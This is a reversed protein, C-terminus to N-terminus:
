IKMPSIEWGTIFYKNLDLQCSVMLTISWCSTKPSLLIILDTGPSKIVIIHWLISPITGPAEKQTKKGYNNETRSDFNEQPFKELQQNNWNHVWSSPSFGCSSGCQSPCLSLRWKQGTSWLPMRHGWPFFSSTKFYVTTNYTGPRTKVQLSQAQPRSPRPILHPAMNEVTAIWSLSGSVLGRSKNNPNYLDHDVIPPKNNIPCWSWNGVVLSGQPYVM